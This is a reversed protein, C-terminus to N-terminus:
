SLNIVHTERDKVSPKNYLNKFGKSVFKFNTIKPEIFLVSKVETNTAKDMQAAPWVSSSWVSM